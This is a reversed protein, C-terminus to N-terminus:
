YRSAYAAEHDLAGLGAPEAEGLQAYDTLGALESRLAGLEARLAELQATQAPASSPTTGPTAGFTGILRYGGLAMGSAGLAAGITPSIMGVLLGGLAGVGMIGLALQRNSASQIGDAAYAAAGLGAGAVMGLALPKVALKPNRRRVTSPNRRRRATTRTRCRTTPAKRRTTRRPAKRRRRTAMPTHGKPNMLLIPIM